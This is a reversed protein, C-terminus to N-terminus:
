KFGSVQITKGVGMEDAILCRGGRQLGFKVGDKQFPLLTAAGHPNRGVKRGSQVAESGWASARQCGEPSPHYSVRAPIPPLVRPPLLVNLSGCCRRVRRVRSCFHCIKESDELSFFEVWTGAIPDSGPLQPLDAVADLVAGGTSPM